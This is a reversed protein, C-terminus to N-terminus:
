IGWKSSMWREQDVSLAMEKEGECDALNAAIVNATASAIPRPKDDEEEADIVGTTTLKLL